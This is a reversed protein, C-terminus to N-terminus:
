CLVYMYLPKLLFSCLAANNISISFAYSLTHCSPKINLSFSIPIEPFIHFHILSKRVPLVAYMFMPPNLPFVNLEFSPSGWPDTIAARRNMRNIASQYILTVPSFTLNASSPVIQIVPFSQCSNTSLKFSFKLSINAHALFHLSLSLMTLVSNQINENLLWTKSSALSKVNTISPWVM